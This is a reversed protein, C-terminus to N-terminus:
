WSVPGMRAVVTGAPSTATGGYPQAGPQFTWGSLTPVIYEGDRYVSLHVHPGSCFLDSGECAPWGVIDGADVVAGAPAPDRQHLILIGTRGDACDIWLRGSEARTVTGPCPARAPYNGEPAFDLATQPTGPLWAQHPGGTLAWQEGAAFPLQLEGGWSAGLAETSAAPAGEPAPSYAFVPAPQAGRAAHGATLWALAASAALLAAPARTM